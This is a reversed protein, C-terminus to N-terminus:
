EVIKFNDLPTYFLTNLIPASLIMGNGIFNSSDEVLKEPNKVGTYYAANRIAKSATEAM